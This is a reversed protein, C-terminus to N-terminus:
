PHGPVAQQPKGRREFFWPISAVALLVVAVALFQLWGWVRDQLTYVTGVSAVCDAKTAYNQSTGNNQWRSGGVRVCEFGGTIRQYTASV